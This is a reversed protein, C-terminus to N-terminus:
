DTLGLDSRTLRNEMPDDPCYLDEYYSAEERRLDEMFDEWDAKKKALVPACMKNSAKSAAGLAALDTPNHYSRSSMWRCVHLLARDQSQM